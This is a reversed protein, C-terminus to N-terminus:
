RSRTSWRRARRLTIVTGTRRPRHAFWSTSRLGARQSLDLEDTANDDQVIVQHDPVNGTRLAVPCILALTRVLDPRQAVLGRALYGGGYSRGLLMM